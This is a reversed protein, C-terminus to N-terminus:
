KGTLSNLADEAKDKVYNAAEGAKDLTSTVVNKADDTDSSIKDGIKDIAKEAKSVAPLKGENTDRKMKNFDASGQVENLGQSSEQEVKDIGYPASKIADEAKNQINPLQQMGKTPNGQSAIAPVANAFVMLGCIYIMVVLRTFFQALKM